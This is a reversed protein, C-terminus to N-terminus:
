QFLSRGRVQLMVAILMSAVKWEVGVLDFTTALSLHGQVDRKSTELGVDNSVVSATRWGPTCHATRASKCLMVSVYMGDASALFTPCTAEFAARQCTTPSIVSMLNTMVIILLPFLLYAENDLGAIRVLRPPWHFLHLGHIRPFGMQEQERWDRVPTFGRDCATM